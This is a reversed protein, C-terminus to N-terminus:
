SPGFVGRSGLERRDMQGWQPLGLMPRVMTWRRGNQAMKGGRLGIKPENPALVTIQGYRPSRPEFQLESPVNGLYLGGSKTTEMEQDQDQDQDQKHEVYM